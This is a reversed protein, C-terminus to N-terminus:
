KHAVIAASHGLTEQLNEHTEIFIKKAEQDNIIKLIENQGNKLEDFGVVSFTSDGNRWEEDFVGNLDYHVDNKMNTETIIKEQIDKFGNNMLNEKWWDFDNYKEQMLKLSSPFFKNYWIIPLQSPYSTTIFLVGNSNLKDYCNSLTKRVNEYNNNRTIENDVHHFVQNIMIVDFSLPKFPMDIVSNNYLQILCNNFENTTGNDNCELKLKCHELMGINLELGTISGIGLNRLHMLYNGTGCGGDLVRLEKLFADYGKHEVYNKDICYASIPEYKNNYMERITDDIHNVGVSIRTKDYNKSTKSYNEFYSFFRKNHISINMRKQLFFAM